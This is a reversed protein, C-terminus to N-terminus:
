KAKACTPIHPLPFLNSKSVEMRSKSVEIRSKSFHQTWEGKDDWLQKKPWIRHIHTWKQVKTQYLLMPLWYSGVTDPAPVPVVEPLPAFLCFNAAGEASAVGKTSWDKRPWSKQGDCAAIIITMSLWLWVALIFSPCIAYPSFVKPIPLQTPIWVIWNLNM